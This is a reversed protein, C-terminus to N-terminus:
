DPDATCRVMEELSAGVFREFRLMNPSPQASTSALEEADACSRLMAYVEELKTHADRLLKANAERGPETPWGHAVSYRHLHFILKKSLATVDRSTKILRERRDNQILVAVYM